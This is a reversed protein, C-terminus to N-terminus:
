EEIAMLQNLQEDTLAGQLQEKLRQREASRLVASQSQIENYLSRLEAGDNKPASHLALADETKKRLETREQKSAERATRLALELKVQAEGDLGLKRALRYVEGQLEEEEAQMETAERGRKFALSRDSGLVEDLSELPKGSRFHDRLRSQETSSLALHREVQKLLVEAHWEERTQDGPRREPEDPAISKPNAPTEIQPVVAPVILAARLEDLERGLMLAKQQEDKIHLSLEEMRRHLREKEQFLSYTSLALVCSLVILFAKLKM